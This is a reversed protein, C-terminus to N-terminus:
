GSTPRGWADSNGLAADVAEAVTPGSVTFTGENTQYTIEWGTVFAWKESGSTHLGGIVPGRTEEVIPTIVIGSAMDALQQMLQPLRGLHM